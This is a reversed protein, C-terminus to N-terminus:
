KARRRLGAKFLESHNEPSIVNLFALAEKKSYYNKIYKGRTIKNMLRIWKKRGLIKKLYVPYQEAAFKDYEKEM